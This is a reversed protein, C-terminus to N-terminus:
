FDHNSYSHGTCLMSSCILLCCQFHIFGFALGIFASCKKPKLNVSVDLIGTDVEEVKQKGKNPAM